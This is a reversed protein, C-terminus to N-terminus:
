VLLLYGDNENEATQSPTTFPGFNQVLFDLPRARFPGPQLRICNQVLYNLSRTPSHLPWLPWPGNGGRPKVGVNGLLKCLEDSRSVIRGLKNAV